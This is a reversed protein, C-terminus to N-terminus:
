ARRRGNECLESIFAACVTTEYGTSEHNLNHQNRELRHSELNALVRGRLWEDTRNPDNPKM